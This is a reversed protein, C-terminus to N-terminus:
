TMFLSLHCLTNRTQETNIMAERNSMPIDAPGTEASFSYGLISRKAVRLCPESSYIRMLPRPLTADSLEGMVTTTTGVAPAAEHIGMINSLFVISIEISFKAAINLIHVPTTPGSGRGFPIDPLGGYGRVGVQRMRLAPGRILALISTRFSEPIFSMRSRFPFLTAHSHVAKGGFLPNVM